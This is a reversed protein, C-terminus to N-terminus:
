FFIFLKQMIRDPPADPSSPRVQDKKFSTKQDVEVAPSEIEAAAEIKLRVLKIAGSSVNPAKRWLFSAVCHSLKTRGFM